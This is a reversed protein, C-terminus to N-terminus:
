KVRTDLGQIIKMLAGEEQREEFSLDKWQREGAMGTPGGDLDTRHLKEEQRLVELEQVSLPTGIGRNDSTPMLELGLFSGIGLLASCLIALFGAIIATDVFINDARGEGNLDVADRRDVDVLKFYQIVDIGDLNMPKRAFGMKEVLSISPRQCAVDPYALIILESVNTQAARNEVEAILKQLIYDWEERKAEDGTAVCVRRIAGVKSSSSMSAGDKLYAVPEGVILAATGVIDSEGDTTAVLMCAGDESYSEKILDENVCDVNLPGEANFGSDVSSLINIIHEGDGEKWDRIQIRERMDTRLLPHVCHPLHSVIITKANSQRNFIHSAPQNQGIYPRCRSMGVLCGTELLFAHAPLSLIMLHSVALMLIMYMSTIHFLRCV